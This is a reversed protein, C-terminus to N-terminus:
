NVLTRTEWAGQQQVPQEDVSNQPTPVMGIAEFPALPFDFTVIECSESTWGERLLRFVMVDDHGKTAIRLENGQIALLVGEQILGSRYQILLM